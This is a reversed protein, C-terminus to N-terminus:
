LYLCDEGMAVYRTGTIGAGDLLARLDDRIILTNPRKALRFLKLHPDIRAPDLYLKYLAGIQDPWLESPESKTHEMDVCDQAELVNAIFCDKAAVRRKHNLIRLPVYEARARSETELLDKLRNSVIRVRLTNSVLDPVNLGPHDKDMRVSQDPPYPEGVQVGKALKWLLKSLEPSATDILCDDEQSASDLIFYSHM